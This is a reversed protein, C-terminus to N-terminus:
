SFLDLSLDLNRPCCHVTVRQRCLNQLTARKSIKVFSNLKMNNGENCNDGTCCEVECELLTGFQTKIGGRIAACALKKDTLIM